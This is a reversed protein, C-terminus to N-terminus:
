REGRGFVPHRLDPIADLWRKVTEHDFYGICYGINSYAVEKGLGNKNIDEIYEGYEKIYQRMTEPDKIKGIADSWNGNNAM